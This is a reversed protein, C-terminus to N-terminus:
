TPRLEAWEALSVTLTTAASKISIDALTAPFSFAVNLSDRVNWKGWSVPLDYWLGEERASTPTVVDVEVIAHGKSSKAKRVQVESATYRNKYIWYSQQLPITFQHHALARALQDDTLLALKANAPVHRGDTRSYQKQGHGGRASRLREGEATLPESQQQDSRPTPQSFEGSHPTSSRSARTRKLSGSAQQEGADAAREGSGVDLEGQESGQEAQEDDNFLQDLPGDDSHM